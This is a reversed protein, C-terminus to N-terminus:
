LSKLSIIHTQHIKYTKTATQLTEATKQYSKHTKTLYKNTKYTKM